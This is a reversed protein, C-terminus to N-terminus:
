VEKAPVIETIEMTEVIVIQEHTRFYKLCEYCYRIRVVVSDFKRTDIAQINESQCYPCLM